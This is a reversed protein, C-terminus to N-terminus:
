GRRKLNVWITRRDTFNEIASSGLDRGVGSDGGLGGWPLRNDTHGYTNVWVTGARIRDAVTHARALDNTWVAAALTYPSDNAMAVAEEESSFRMVSVVPGFIEERGVVMRNDVGSFVTPAMYYGPGELRQGGTRLVAGEDIGQEVYSLVRDMQRQSILPGLYTDAATPEGVRLNASREVLRDTFEEAIREHVLVRTGASCVQGSNFFVGAVAAKVASDLDADDFVVNPSKGGLELTIRPVNPAAKEMILKGVGPSGTFTIKDIGPHTILAMGAGPGPGPLINLVGPPLGAELALEGLRLASLPTEAAPKMVMVCGCALAPAIKWMANMLPFNWPVIGAVVGVPVRKVYTLADPRVPVVEGTIKDCWGAYYDLCDIVTPMDQRRVAALPKGADLSELHVLEEEHTRLLDVLCRLMKGRESAQMKPWPGDEFASRAALVALDIDRGDPEPLEAIVEETAPNITAYSAGSVSERWEGGILLKLTPLRVTDPPGAAPLPSQAVVM